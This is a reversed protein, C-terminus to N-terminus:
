FQKREADFIGALTELRAGTLAMYDGAQRDSQFM